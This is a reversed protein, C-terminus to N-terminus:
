KDGQGLAAKKVKEKWIKIPNSTWNGQDIRGSGSGVRSSSGEAGEKSGYYVHGIIV